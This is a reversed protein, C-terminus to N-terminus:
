WAGKSSQKGAEPQSAGIPSTAGGKWFLLEEAEGREQWRLIWCFDLLEAWEL